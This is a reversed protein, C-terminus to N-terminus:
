GKKIYSNHYTNRKKEEKTIRDEEKRENVENEIITKIENIRTKFEINNSELLYNFDSDNLVKEKNIYTFELINSLDKIKFNALLKGHHAKENNLDFDLVKECYEIAKNWKM